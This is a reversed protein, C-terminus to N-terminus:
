SVICSLFRKKSLSLVRSFKDSNETKHTIVFVNADKIVYRLIKMLEESGASDLSSDFVEDFLILNTNVSNKFRAWKEGALILALDIRAKEGESFAYTFDEHIPTEIKENFEQDLKFNIYFDM